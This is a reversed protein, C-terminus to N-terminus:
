EEENMGAWYRYVALWEAGSPDPATFDLDAQGVSYERGGM